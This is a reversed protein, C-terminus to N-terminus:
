RNTRGKAPSAAPAERLFTIVPGSADKTEVTREWAWRLAGHETVIFAGGADQDLPDLYRKLIGLTKYLMSMDNRPWLEDMIREKHLADRRSVLCHFLMRAGNRGWAIPIRVGAMMLRLDALDDDHFVVEVRRHEVPFLFDVVPRLEARAEDSLALLQELVDRADGSERVYELLEASGAVLKALRAAYRLRRTKSGVAVLKLCARVELFLFGHDKALEAAIVLHKEDMLLLAEAMEQPDNTCALAETAYTESGYCKALGYYGFYTYEPGGQELGFDVAKRFFTEAVAREGRSLHWLGRRYWRQALALPRDQASTEDGVHREVEPGPLSAAVHEALILYDWAMNTPQGFERLCQATLSESKRLNGLLYHIKALNARAHWRYYASKEPAMPLPEDLIAQYYSIGHKPHKDYYTHFDGLLLLRLLRLEPDAPRVERITPLLREFFKIDRRKHLLDRGLALVVRHYDAVEPSERFLDLATQSAENFLEHGMTRSFLLMRLVFYWPDAEMEALSRTTVLQDFLAVVEDKSHEPDDLLRLCSQKLESM